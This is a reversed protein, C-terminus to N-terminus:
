LIACQLAVIAFSVFMVFCGCALAEPQILRWHKENCLVWKPPALITILGALFVVALVAFIILAISM